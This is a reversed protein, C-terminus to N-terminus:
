SKDEGRDLGAQYAALADHLTEADSLLAVLAPKGDAAGPPGPEV